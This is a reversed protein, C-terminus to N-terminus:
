RSRIRPGAYKAQRGGLYSSTTPKRGGFANIARDVTCAGPQIGFRHRRGTVRLKAVVFSGTVMMVMMMVSVVAATPKQQNMQQEM